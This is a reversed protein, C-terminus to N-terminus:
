RPLVNPKLRHHDHTTPKLDLMLYGHPHSTAKEYAHMFEPVRGPNIQRALTLIQQKDRPSKFLVIYHTNLIINRAETGQHFINQVIYIVSLNRHHSGKTFLNAIRKEGGSQAMLDGLVILNRKNVDLFDRSDIESPIGEYFEISPIIDIMELYMPQWQGYCWIIRQPPPRITEQANDLLTKVWVTKGSQTCTFLHHLTGPGSVLPSPKTFPDQKHVNREYRQM